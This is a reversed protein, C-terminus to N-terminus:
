LARLNRVTVETVLIQRYYNDDNVAPSHNALRPRSNTYLNRPDDRSSRVLMYMRVAWVSDADEVGDGDLDPISDGWQTPDNCDVSDTGDDTCYEFQLDEVNDVLPVDDSNPWNDNMDMMLVPHSPSGPGVGDDQDDIYFSLVQGRACRMIPTLNQEGEPCLELFDLFPTAPNLFVEGNSADPASSLDWMYAEMGSVDAFDLCLFLDGAELQLLKMQNDLFHPYFSLSETDCADTNTYATDMVTSPDGYVVTIADTFNPGEADFSMIAPLAASHTSNYGMVGVVEGNTNFGAMRISRSLIETGFRLNQHMEMQQDQFFFQRSQVTFLAYLATVVFSAIAVAVAMELM